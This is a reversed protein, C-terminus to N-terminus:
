LALFGAVPPLTVSVCATTLAADLKDIRRGLPVEVWGPLLAAGPSITGLSVPWVAVATTLGVVGALLAWGAPGLPLSVGARAAWPSLVLLALVFVLIQVPSVAVAIGASKSGGPEVSKSRMIV